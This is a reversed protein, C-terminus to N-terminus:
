CTRLWSSAPFAISNWNPSSKGLGLRSKAKWLYVLWANLCFTMAFAIGGPEGGAFVSGMRGLGNRQQVAEPVTTVGLIRQGFIGYPSQGMRFEWIGPVGTWLVLIVFRRVTALRLSPEILSRGVVYALFMSIFADVAAFIGDNLVSSHLVESLGTSACYLLVLLDMYALSGSRALRVLGVVGLPILAFEAVSTPPLHPLRLRYDDPLCLLCPLYVSLFATEIRGRLVLFLSILGPVLLLLIM